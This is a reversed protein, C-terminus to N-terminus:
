RDTGEEVRQRALEYQLEITMLEPCGGAFRDRPGLPQGFNEEYFRRVEPLQLFELIEPCDTLATYEGLIESPDSPDVLPLPGEADSLAQRDPHIQVFSIAGTTEACARAADAADPELVRTLAPGTDLLRGAGAVLEGLAYADGPLLVRQGDADWTTGDPWLAVSAGVFLCGQRLKLDGMLTMTPTPLDPESLATLVPGDAGAPAPDSGKGSMAAVTVAGATLMVLAAAAGGAARGRRTRRAHRHIEGLPPPGMPTEAVSDHLAERLTHQNM